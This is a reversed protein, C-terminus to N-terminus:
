VNTITTSCFGINFGIVIVVDSIVGIVLVM